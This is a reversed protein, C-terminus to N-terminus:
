IWYNSLVRLFVCLMQPSIVFRSTRMFLRQIMFECQSSPPFLIFSVPFHTLAFSAAPGDIEFESNFLMAWMGTPWECPERQTEVAECSLHRQFEKWGNHQSPLTHGSWDGPVKARVGYSRTMHLTTCLLFCSGECLKEWGENEKGTIQEQVVDSSSLLETFRYKTGLFCGRRGEGEPCSLEANRNITELNSSQLHLSGQFKTKWVCLCPKLFVVFDKGFWM